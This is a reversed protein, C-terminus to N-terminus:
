FFANFCLTQSVDTIKALSRKKLVYRDRHNGLDVWASVGDFYVSNGVIGSEVSCSSKVTGDIDGVLKGSVIEDM